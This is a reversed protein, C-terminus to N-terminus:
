LNHASLDVDLDFFSQRYKIIPVKANLVPQMNAVGPTWKEMLMTITQLIVMHHYRETGPQEKSIFKLPSDNKTLDNAITLVVDLDSGMRGFGNVSSGFPLARASPFISGVMSEIQLAAMFRLRTALESLRTQEYLQQVHDDLSDQRRVVKSLDRSEIASRQVSVKCQPADSERHAQSDKPSFMLFHSLSKSAVENSPAYSISRLASSAAFSSKFELLCHTAQLKNRYTFCNSVTGFRSCYGILSKIARDSQVSVLISRSAEKRRESIM